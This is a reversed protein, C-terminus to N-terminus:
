LVFFKLVYKPTGLHARCNTYFGKLFERTSEVQQADPEVKGYAVQVYAGSLSTFSANSQSEFEEIFPKVAVAYELPTHAGMDPVKMKGFRKLAFVYAESVMQPPPLNLMQQIARNRRSIKFRVIAFILAIVLAIIVLVILISAVPPLSHTQANYQPDAADSDNADKSAGQTQEDQKGSGEDGEDTDDASGQNHATDQEDNNNQTTNDEDEASAHDAIGTMDVQPLALYEKLLKVEITPPNLPAIVAAYIGCGFLCILASCAVCIGLAVPSGKRGQAAQSRSQTYNRYALVTACSLLFLLSLVVHGEKYVFQLYGITAIGAVLLVVIGARKRTLLYVIVTTVIAALLPPCPNGVEDAFMGEGQWMGSAVALAVVTLVPIGMIGAIVTGRSYSAANLLLLAVVSVAAIIWPMAVFADGSWFGTAILGSAASALVALLLFDWVRSAMFRAFGGM